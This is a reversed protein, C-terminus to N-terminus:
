SPKDWGCTCCRGGDWWHECHSKDERRGCYGDDHSHEQDGDPHSHWAGGGDEDVHGHSLPYEAVRDNQYTSM